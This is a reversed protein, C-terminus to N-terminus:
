NRSISWSGLRRGESTPLGSVRLLDTRVGCAGYLLAVLHVYRERELRKLRLGVGIGGANGITALIRAGEDHEGLETLIEVSTARCIRHPSAIADAVTPNTVAWARMAQVAPSMVVFAENAAFELRRHPDPLAAMHIMLQDAWARWRSAFRDVFGPMDDFHHYFSGKSVDLRDCLSAVTLGTHGAEGLLGYAARFFDDPSRRISVSSVLAGCFKM